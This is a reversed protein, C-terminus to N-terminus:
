QAISLYEEPTLPITLAFNVYNSTSVKADRAYAKVDAHQADSLRAGIERGNRIDSTYYFQQGLSKNILFTVAHGIVVKRGTDAEFWALEACFKHYVERDVIWRYTKRGISDRLHEYGM